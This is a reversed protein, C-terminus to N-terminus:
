VDQTISEIIYQRSKARPIGLQAGGAAAGGGCV